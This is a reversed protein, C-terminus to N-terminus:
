KTCGNQDWFTQGLEKVFLYNRKNMIRYFWATFISCERKIKEENKEYFLLDASERCGWLTGLHYAWDHFNAGHKLISSSPLKNLVTTLEPIADPGVGNPRFFKKCCPCIGGQLAMRETIEIM